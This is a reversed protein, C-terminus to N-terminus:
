FLSIKALYPALRKEAIEVYESSIESLIWNRKYIHAMKATTGSGGFCDYVIEGANSWTCIHDAALKEPFIAPHKYAIDDESSYGYGNNIKWINNRYGFDASCFMSRKKITGDKQRESNIGFTGTGAWRNPKDKLLNYTKPKGKSLVFMYEFVQSYRNSKENAPYAAGNKEYIMTDHILYGIQQFYLAQRFSTGSEGGDIVADGVIWVVIGGEKTVRYLGKAIDEFPFSYGKYDRLNDYPPSTVVLDIFADPMKGMTDLCSENYIKNLEM